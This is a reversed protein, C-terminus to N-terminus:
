STCGRLWCGLVPGSPCPVLLPGCLLNQVSPGRGLTPSPSPPILPESDLGVKLHEWFLAPFLAFQPSWLSM